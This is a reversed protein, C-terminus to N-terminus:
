GARGPHGAPPESLHFRRSFGGGEPHNAFLMPMARDASLANACRRVLRGSNRPIIASKIRVPGHQVLNFVEGTLIREAISPARFLHDMTPFSKRFRWQFFANAIGITTVARWARNTIM